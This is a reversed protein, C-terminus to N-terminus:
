NRKTEIKCKITFKNKRARCLVMRGLKNRTISRILVEVLLKDGVYFWDEKEVEGYKLLVKKKVPFEM